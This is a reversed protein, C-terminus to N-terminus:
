GEWREGGRAVAAAHGAASFPWPVVTARWPADHESADPRKTFAEYAANIEAAKTDAEARDVAALVDDPGEVHVAWLDTNIETM